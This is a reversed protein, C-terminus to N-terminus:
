NQATCSAIDGTPLYECISVGPITGSSPAFSARHPPALLAATNSIMAAVAVATGFALVITPINRRLAPILGAHM